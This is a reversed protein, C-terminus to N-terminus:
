TGLPRWGDGFFNWGNDFWVTGSKRAEWYSSTRIFNVEDPIPFATGRSYPSVEGDNSSLKIQEVELDLRQVAPVRTELKATLKTVLETVLQQNVSRNKAVQLKNWNGKPPFVRTSRYNVTELFKRLSVLQYVSLKDLVRDQTFAKVASSGYLDLCQVLRRRFEGPRSSLLQLALEDQDALLKELRSNFTKLQGRYLKDSAAVVKPYRSVYDGPHIKAVLRKFLEARRAMELAQLLFRREPRSFKRLQGVERLSPDGGSMGHALRLVDTATPVSIYQKGKICEAVLKVLNEKFGVVSLDVPYDPVLDLVDELEQRKWRAPQRLYSGLIQAATVPTARHLVTLQPQEEM